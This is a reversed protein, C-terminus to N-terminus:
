KVYRSDMEENKYYYNKSMYNEIAKKSPLFIHEPLDDKDFWQWKIIEDPEMVKPEGQFDRCLFGITVFHADPVMDNSLSFFELNNIRLGTEEFVERKACETPKELFDLKGGPLTWTGEGHLKSDAKAPDDHRRGLLIKNDKNLILVGVGVRPVKIM